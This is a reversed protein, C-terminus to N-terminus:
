TFLASLFREVVHLRDAPMQQIARCRGAVRDCVARAETGSLEGLEVARMLDAVARLPGAQHTACTRLSLFLAADHDRGQRQPGLVCPIGIDPEVGIGSPDGNPSGISM